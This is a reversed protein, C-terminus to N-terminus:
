GNEFAENWFYPFIHCISWSVNFECYFVLKTTNANLTRRLMFCKRFIYPLSQFKYGQRPFFLRLSIVNGSFPYMKKKMSTVNFAQFRLKVKVWESQHTFTNILKLTYNILAIASVEWWLLRVHYAFPLVYFWCQPFPKRNLLHGENFSYQM